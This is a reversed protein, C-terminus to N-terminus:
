SCQDLRKMFGEMNFLKQQIKQYQMNDSIQQYNSKRKPFDKEEFSKQKDLVPQQVLKNSQPRLSNYKQLLQMLDPNDDKPSMRAKKDDIGYLIDQM